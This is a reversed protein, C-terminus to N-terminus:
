TKTVATYRSRDALLALELGSVSKRMAAVEVQQGLLVFPSREQHDRQMREYM